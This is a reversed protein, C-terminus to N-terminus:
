RELRKILMELQYESLNEFRIPSADEEGGHRISQLPRGHGRDLIAQAAASRASAPAKADKM